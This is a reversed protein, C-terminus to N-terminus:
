AGPAGAAKLGCRRALRDLRRAEAEAWEARAKWHLVERRWAFDVMRRHERILWLAKESLAQLRLYEEYPIRVMMVDPSVNERTM